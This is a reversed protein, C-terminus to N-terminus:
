IRDSDPYAYCESIDEVKRKNGCCVNLSCSECTLYSVNRHGEIEETRRGFRAFDVPLKATIDLVM